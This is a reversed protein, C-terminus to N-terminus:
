HKVKEELRIVQETLKTTARTQETLAKTVGELVTITRTSTLENDSVRNTLTTLTGGIEKVNAILLTQNQELLGTKNILLNTQKITDSRDSLTTKNITVRTDLEALTDNITVYSGVISGVLLVLALINAKFWHGVGETTTNSM